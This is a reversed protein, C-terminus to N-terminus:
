DKFIMGLRLETKANLLAYHFASKEGSLAPNPIVSNSPVFFATM